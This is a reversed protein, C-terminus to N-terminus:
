DPAGTSRAIRVRADLAITGHELALLPNVDLELIDPCDVAMQGLRRIVSVLARRDVPPAGRMGEFFKAGRLGMVMRMAEDDDVPAIRFVVDRLAEVFIGGLGFMVLPGFSHDRTLGVITECAGQMMRQVLIGDIGADPVVALVNTLIEDYAQRLEPESGIGIRVGGVDTKHVVEASMIKLVVPYGVNAAAHAADDASSALHADAV